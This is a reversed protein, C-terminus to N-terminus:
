RVNVVCIKDDETIIDVDMFVSKAIAAAARDSLQYQECMRPLNSWRKRNQSLESINSSGAVFESTTSSQSPFLKYM